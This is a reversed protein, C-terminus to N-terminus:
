DGAAWKETLLTMHGATMGASQVIARGQSCSATIQKGATATVTVALNMTRVM